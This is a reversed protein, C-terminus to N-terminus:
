LVVWARAVQTVNSISHYINGDIYDLGNMVDIPTIMHVDLDDQLSSKCDPHFESDEQFQAHTCDIHQQQQQVHVRVFNM